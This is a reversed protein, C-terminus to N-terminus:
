LVVVYAVRRKENTGADNRVTLTVTYQGPKQYTHNPEKDFSNTGDGFEWFWEVVNAQPPTSDEFQVYFPHTGSYKLEPIEFDVGQPITKDVITIPKTKSDTKGEWNKVTMNVNFTGNKTFTHKTEGKTLTEITGDDFDWTWSDPSGHSADIFTVPTNMVAWEAPVTTFDAILGKVSIYRPKPETDNGWPNKVTLNVNYKGPLTYQHVPNPNTSTQGDGFEWLYSSIEPGQAKQEFYVDEDREVIRPYGIFDALPARMETINVTENFSSVDQYYTNYVTLNVNYEKFEPFFNTPEQESSINGDGFQWFWDSINGTSLDKFTVGVTENMRATRNPEFNAHIPEVVEITSQDTGMVQTTSNKVTLNVLFNGADYYTHNPNQTKNVTNDGFDWSWEDVFPPETTDTFQVTLPSVGRVPDAEFKTEFGESLVIRKTTSRQGPGGEIKTNQVWLTVDYSGPNQYEHEPNKLLSHGSGDGFDWEWQDPSDTSIDNFQIKLPFSGYTPSYTFNPVPWEIISIVKQTSNTEGCSNNVTFTVTYDGPQTYITNVKQNGSHTGDGNGFDWTHGRADFVDPENYTFNVKIPENTTVQFARTKDATFNAYLGSIRIKESKTQNIDHTLNRTTLNISYWGPMLFEHSAIKNTNNATGDGFSWNFVDPISNGSATENPTFTYTVPFVPPKCGGTINTYTFNASLPLYANVYKTRTTENFDWPSSANLTVDFLGPKTYTHDPNPNGVVNPTKDGFSWNWGNIDDGTSNDRFHLELPVPGKAQGTFTSVTTNFRTIIGKKAVINYDNHTSSNVWLRKYYYPSSTDTIYSTNWVTHNVRQSNGATPFIVTGNRNIGSTNVGNLQWEWKDPGGTFDDSFFKVGLPLVGTTPTLNTFNASVPNYALIYGLGLTQEPFNPDPHGTSNYAICDLGYIGPDAIDTTWNKDDYDIKNSTRYVGNRGTVTWNVQKPHYPSDPDINVTCNISVPNTVDFFTENASISYIVEGEIGIEGDGFAPSVLNIVLIAVFLAFVYYLPREHM